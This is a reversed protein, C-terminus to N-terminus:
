IERLWAANKKHHFDVKLANSKPNPTGGKPPEAGTGGLPPVGFPSFRTAGRAGRAHVRREIATVRPVCQFCAKMEFNM